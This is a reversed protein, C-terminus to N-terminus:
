PEPAAEPRVSSEPSGLPWLPGGCYRWAVEEPSVYWRSYGVPFKVRKICSRAPTPWICHLHLHQVSIFPWLHFGLSLTEAAREARLDMVGRQRAVREAVEIMDRLLSLDGPTM